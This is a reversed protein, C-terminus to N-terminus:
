RTGFTKQNGKKHKYEIDLIKDKEILSYVAQELLSSNDVFKASFINDLSFHCVIDEIDKDVVMYGLADDKFLPSFSCHELLTKGDAQMDEVSDFIFLRRYSLFDEDNAFKIDLNSGFFRMEDDFKELLKNESIFMSSLKFDILTIDSETIQKLEDLLDGFRIKVSEIQELEFQKKYCEDLEQCVDRLEKRLASKKDSLNTITKDLKKRTFYNGM